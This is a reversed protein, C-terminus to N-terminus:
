RWEGPVARHPRTVIERYSLHEPHRRLHDLIRAM